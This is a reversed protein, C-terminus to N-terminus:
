GSKHWLQRTEFRFKPVLLVASAIWAYALSAASAARVVLCSRQPSDGTAAAEFFVAATANSRGTWDPQGVRIFYTAQADERSEVAIRTRGKRGQASDCRGVQRLSRM